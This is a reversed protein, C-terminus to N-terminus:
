KATQPTAAVRRSIESLNLTARIEGIVHWFGMDGRVLYVFDPNILKDRVTLRLFKRQIENFRPNKKRTQFDMVFDKASNRSRFLDLMEELIPLIKRARAYPM